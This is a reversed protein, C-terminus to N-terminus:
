SHMIKKVTLYDRVFNRDPTLRMYALLQEQLDEDTSAASRDIQVLLEEVRALDVKDAAVHVLEFVRELTMLFNESQTDSSEAQFANFLSDDIHAFDLKGLNVMEVAGYVDDMKIFIDAWQARDYDTHYMSLDQLAKCNKEFVSNAIVFEEIEKMEYLDVGELVSRLSFTLCSSLFATFYARPNSEPMRALDLISEPQLQLKKDAGHQLSIVWQVISDRVNECHIIIQAPDVPPGEKALLTVTEPHEEALKKLEEFRQYLLAERAQAYYNPTEVPGLSYVPMRM